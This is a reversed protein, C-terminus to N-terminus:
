PWLPLPLGLGWVILTHLLLAIGLGILGARLWSVATQRAILMASLGAPILTGTYPVLLPFLAIAGLMRWATGNSLEPCCASSAPARILLLACVALGAILMMPFAGPGITGRQMLPLDRALWAAGLALTLLLGLAVWTRQQPSFPTQQWKVLISRM